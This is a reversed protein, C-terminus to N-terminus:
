SAAGPEPRGAEGGRAEGMPVVWELEDEGSARPPWSGPSAQLDAHRLRGHVGYPILRVRDRSPEVRVEVFSQYFPAVNYDFAASLWEASFPWADFHKTWWWLPRKWVPTAADIKREVRERSPYFAWTALAPDAPWSLATGFSLYAGGGGNVFHQMTQAGSPTDYREVYYELDHTDGAMAIQVHHERLLRHIAEFGENGEAQYYGGAYLPHGLVVMIFKGRAAELAAELWRRERPDIRKAVGTDVALLAFRETQVQFFPARQHAVQVRYERQLRSATRILEEIRADTTSTIRNDVEIRARMAARAARPEFFTAAFGELADYWDHNGPIAYVPKEVGKFPLWFKAEYDKMAGTPYVVDSSIVIFKVADAAAATLLQDRLVHQSADGEGTDGIVIFAFDDDGTIGPPSVAFTDADDRAADRAVVAEVMAERWTDTRAEAWSNWVGSAWNETDFYWSMGWVPVTAAIIAAFPLGIQLGRGLATRWSYRAARLRMAFRMRGELRRQVLARLSWRRIPEALCRQWLRREIGRTAKRWALRFPVVIVFAIVLAIFLDGLVAVGPSLIGLATRDFGMRGVHVAFLTAVFALIWDRDAGARSQEEEQMHTALAVLRPEDGLGLDDVVTNGSDAATYVPAALVNWATGLIRLAGVIAITWTTAHERLALVLVAVIGNGLLSPLWGRSEGRSPRARLGIWAYRVADIAFWCALLLVLASGVFSAANILLVGMLISIGAGQWAARQAASGSRRFGHLGELVGTVVLLAGVREASPAGSRLPSVLALVALLILAAELGLTNRLRGEFGDTM